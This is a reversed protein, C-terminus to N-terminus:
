LTLLFDAPTIDAFRFAAARFSFLPLLSLFAFYCLCSFFFFISSFAALPILVSFFFRLLLRRCRFYDILSFTAAVLM